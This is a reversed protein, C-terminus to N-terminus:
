VEHESSRTCQLCIPIDALTAGAVIDHYNRTAKRGCRFKSDTDLIHGVGSYRHIRCNRVANLTLDDFNVRAQDPLDDRRLDLEDPDDDESDSQVMVHPHEDLDCEAAVLDALRQVRPQDPKFKKKRIDKIMRQEIALVRTLEDRSYTVPSVNNPDLHHGALRRDSISAYSGMALWSLMTCKLSHCGLKQADAFDFGSGTMIEQLYLCAEGTVM